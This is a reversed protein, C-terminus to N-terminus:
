DQLIGVVRKAAHATLSITCNKSCKTAKPEKLAIM